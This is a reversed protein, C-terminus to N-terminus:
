QGALIRDEDQVEGGDEELSRILERYQENTQQLVFHTANLANGGRQAASQLPGAFKGFVQPTARVVDGLKDLGWATTSALRPNVLRRAAVGAIPGIPGGKVLGGGIGAVTDGVGGIPSQKLQAARREAAERIPDLLGYTDKAEKFKTAVAPNAETAAREVEDMYGLYSAKGAAGAEPDMWNGAAKKFGRKTQEALAIGPNSEGTAIIDDIKQQLARVVGAQSADKQLAAIKSQLAAVVNDASATVGQAELAALSDDLAREAEEVAAGVRKGIKAATDLPRVLGRDLLERGAGPRFKEAQAATAGTANEAFQGAKDDIADASSRFANGVVPTAKAVGHALAGGAAGGLTGVGLGLATDTALGGLTDAESNGAGMVAGQAGGQVATNAVTSGLTKGASVSPIMSALPNAVSGAINAALATKPNAEAAQAFEQRLQNREREYQDGIDSLPQGALPGAHGTLAKMATSGIAGLEDAFGLTAGQALGSAAAAVPSDLPSPEAPLADDDWFPDHGAGDVPLSDDGWFDDSM